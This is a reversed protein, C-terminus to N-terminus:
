SLEKTIHHLFSSEGAGLGDASILRTIWRLAVSSQGDDKIVKCCRTIHANAGEHDDVFERIRAFARLLYTERPSQADWGLAELTSNLAEDEALSLHRDVYLSMFLLDIIAERAAQTM